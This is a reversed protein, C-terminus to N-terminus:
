RTAADVKRRNEKTRRRAMARASTMDTDKLYSEVQRLWSAVRDEMLVFGALKSQVFQEDVKVNGIVKTVAHEHGRVIKMCRYGRVVKMRRLGRVVKMRRLGRVVKMRRLGRDLKM